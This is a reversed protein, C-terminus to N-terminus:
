PTRQEGEGILELVAPAVNEAAVSHGAASFNFGDLRLTAALMRPDDGLDVLRVREGTFSSAM